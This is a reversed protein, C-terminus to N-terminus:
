SSTVTTKINLERQIDKIKSYIQRSDPRFVGHEAWCERVLCFLNNLADSSTRPCYPRLKEINLLDNMVKEKQIINGTDFRRQYEDRNFAQRMFEEFMYDDINDELYRRENPREDWLAPCQSLILWAILSFSYVDACAYRNVIDSNSLEGEGIEFMRLSLIEPAMYLWTGDPSKHEFCKERVDELKQLIKRNACNFEDHQQAELLLNQEFPREQQKERRKSSDDAKRNFCDCQHPLEQILPISSNFDCIVAEGQDSILVNSPKLDRHVMRPKPHEIGESSRHLEYLGCSLSKLLKFAEHISLGAKEDQTSKSKLYTGVDGNLYAPIVIMSTPRNLPDLHKSVYATMRLLYDSRAGILEFMIKEHEAKEERDICKVAVCQEEYMAKYVFGYRGQGLICPNDNEDKCYTIDGCLKRSTIKISRVGNELMPDTAYDDSYNNDSTGNSRRNMLHHRQSRQCDADTWCKPCLFTPPSLIFRGSNYWVLVFGIGVFVIISAAVAVMILDSTEKCVRDIDDFSFSFIISSNEDDSTKLQCWKYLNQELNEVDYIYDKHFECCYVGKDNDHNSNTVCPANYLRDNDSESVSSYTIKKDGVEAKCTIGRFDLDDPRITYSITAINTQCKPYEGEPCQVSRVGDLCLIISPLYLIFLIIM